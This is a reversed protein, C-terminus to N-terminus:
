PPSLTSSLVSLHCGELTFCFLLAFSNLPVQCFFPFGKSLPVPPFGSHLLANNEDAVYLASVRADGANCAVPKECVSSQCATSGSFFLGDEVVKGPLRYGALSLLTKHTQTGSRLTVTCINAIATVYKRPRLRVHTANIYARSSFRFLQTM